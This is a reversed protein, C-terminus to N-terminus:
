KQKFLIESVTLIHEMLNSRQKGLLLPQNKQCEVLLNGECTLVSVTPYLFVFKAYCMFQGGPPM